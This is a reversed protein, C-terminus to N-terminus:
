ADRRECEATQRRAVDQWVGFEGEESPGGSREEHWEVRKAGWSLWAKGRRSLSAAELTMKDSKTPSSWASGCRRHAVPTRTAATQSM